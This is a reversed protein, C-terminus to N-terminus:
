SIAELRGASRAVTALEIRADRGSLHGHGAGIGNWRIDALRLRADPRPWDGWAVLAAQRNRLRAAIRSGDKASVSRGYAGAGPAPPRVAVITVVDILAAVVELWMEGPDPVWVTRSLEVGAAAAAELGLDGSGVVGCWAGDGSPGALAAFLLSASEVAYVGGARLQVLGSLSRHTPLPSGAGRGQMQEIREALVSVVSPVIEQAM